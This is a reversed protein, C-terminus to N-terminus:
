EDNAAEMASALREDVWNQVDARIFAIRGGLLRVTPVFKGQASYKLISSRSCKTMNVAEAVHIFPSTKLNTDSTM